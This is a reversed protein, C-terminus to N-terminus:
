EYHNRHYSHVGVLYYLAKAVEVAVALYVDTFFYNASKSVAKCNNWNTSNTQHSQITWSSFEYPLSLELELLPLFISPRTNVNAVFGIIQDNSTATKCPVAFFHVLIYFAHVSANNGSM